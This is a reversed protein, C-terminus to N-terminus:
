EKRVAIITVKPRRPPPRKCDTFERYVVNENYIMMANSKATGIM